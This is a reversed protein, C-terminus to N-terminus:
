PKVTGNIFNGKNGGVVTFFVIIENDSGSYMGFNKKNVGSSAGNYDAQFNTFLFNWSLRSIYLMKPVTLTCDTGLEITFSQNLSLQETEAYPCGKVELM